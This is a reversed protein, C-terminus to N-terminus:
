LYNIVVVYVLVTFAHIGALIWLWFKKTAIKETDEDKCTYQLFFTSHDKGGGKKYNVFSNM